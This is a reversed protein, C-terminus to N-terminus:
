RMTDLMDEYCATTLEELFDAVKDDWGDSGSFWELCEVLLQGYDKYTTCVEVITDYMDGNYEEIVKDLMGKM